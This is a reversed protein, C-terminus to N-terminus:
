HLSRFLAGGLTSAATTDPASLRQLAKQADEQGQAAAKKYWAIAMSVDRAVAYGDEYMV